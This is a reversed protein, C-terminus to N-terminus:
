RDKIWDLRGAGFVTQDRDTAEVLLAAREGWASVEAANPSWAHDPWRVEYRLKTGNLISVAIHYSGGAPLGPTFEFVNPSTVQIRLAGGLVESNQKAPLWAWVLNGVILLAAAAAIAGLWTGFRGRSNRKPLSQRLATVTAAELAPAPQRIDAQLQADFTDLNQQVGLLSRLEAAFAPDNCAALVLPDDARLTGSLVDMLLAEHEPLFNTDANSM